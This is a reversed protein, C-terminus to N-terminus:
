RKKIMKVSVLTSVFRMVPSIAHIAKRPDPQIGYCAIGGRILTFPHHIDQPIGGSASIHRWLPDFGAARVLRLADEFLVLQKATFARSVNSVSSADAFHSCLGDVNLGPISRIKSLFAELEEIRIGERNMGTDVFLHINCGKQYRSLVEVMELDWVAYSFPLRKVKFNDPHTYGM